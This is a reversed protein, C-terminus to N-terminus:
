SLQVRPDVYAYLIDTLLNFASYAIAMLITLSKLVPFDGTNIATILIDGVGPLSFFREMLFAGLILFPIGIVSYTLIPIMANKLIHNLMVSPESAGKAFATRVYDAKTEDLFVTRFMRIDQGSSVFMIIIWPLILYPIGEWGEAWGNIPFLDWKYALLYQFGIIYVLYSVSMAAVFFVTSWRDFWSGRFYAIALAILLNTSMGFFYPFVTLSLSVVVGEAFMDTLREGTNFSRGLDMTAIQRLFDLFQVPLPKDLGWQSRLEDIAEQNAHQGLAVRVPDEGVSSFLLFVLLAVGLIIPIMYLVRRIIYATM